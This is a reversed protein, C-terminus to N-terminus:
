CVLVCTGTVARYALEAGDHRQSLIGRTLVKWATDGTVTQTMLRYALQMVTAEPPVLVTLPVDPNVLEKILDRKEEMPVPQSLHSRDSSVDEAINCEDTSLQMCSLIDVGPCARYARNGSVYTAVTRMVSTNVSTLNSAQKSSVPRHEIKNERNYFSTNFLICPTCTLQWRTSPRTYRQLTSPVAVPQFPLLLVLTFYRCATNM